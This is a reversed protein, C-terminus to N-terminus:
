KPATLKNVIVIAVVGAVLIGTGQLIPTTYDVQQQEQPNILNSIAGIPNLIGNLVLSSQSGDNPILSSFMPATGLYGMFPLLLFSM